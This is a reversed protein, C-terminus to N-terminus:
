HIMDITTNPESGNCYLSSCSYFGGRAEGRRVGFM